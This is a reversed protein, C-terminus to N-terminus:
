KLSGRNNMGQDENGSEISGTVKFTGVLSLKFFSLEKFRDLNLSSVM